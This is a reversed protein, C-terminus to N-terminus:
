PLKLSEILYEDSQDMKPRKNQYYCQQVTKNQYYCQQVSPNLRSHRSTRLVSIKEPVDCLAHKEYTEKECARKLRRLCAAHM